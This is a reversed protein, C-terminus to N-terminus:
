IKELRQKHVEVEQKLKNIMSVISETQKKFEADKKV